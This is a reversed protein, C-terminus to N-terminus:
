ETATQGNSTSFEDIVWATGYLAWCTVFLIMSAKFWFVLTLLSLSMSVNAIAALRRAGEKMMM